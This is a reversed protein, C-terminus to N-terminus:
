GPPWQMQRGGMFHVHLHYVSQAGDPGNNIVVRYGNALNHKELAVKNGVSLLHGLLNSDDESSKSLMSIPKRPIVLFHVPAQPSVDNFAICQDDEYIIDAPIEKRLIKGFITDEQAPAEAAAKAKDVETSMKRSSALLVQNFPQSPRSLVRAVPVQLLITRVRNM